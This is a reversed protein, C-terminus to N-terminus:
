GVCQPYIPLLLCIDNGWPVSMRFSKLSHSSDIRIIFTIAINQNMNTM